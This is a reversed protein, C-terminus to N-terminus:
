GHHSSRSCAKSPAHAFDKYVTCSSNEKLKQLRGAAGEFTSIAEFFQENTIGIKKLVEKGGMDPLSYDLTIVAPKKYLNGLCERGTTFKDVVYDPNLSLNYELINAYLLDDEVIFIRFENTTDM